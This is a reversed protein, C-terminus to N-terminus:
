EHHPYSQTTKHDGRLGQGDWSHIQATASHYQYPLISTIFDVCKGACFELANNHSQVWADM